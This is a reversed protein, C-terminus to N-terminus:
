YERCSLPPPAQCGQMAAQPSTKQRGNQGVRALRCADASLTPQARNAFAHRNAHTPRFPRSFRSSMTLENHWPSPLLPMNQPTNQTITTTSYLVGVVGWGTFSRGLIHSCEELQWGVSLVASCLGCVPTHEATSLPPQSNSCLEWIKHLFYTNQEVLTKERVHYTLYLYLISVVWFLKQYELTSYQVVCSSVMDVPATALVEDAISFAAQPARPPRSPGLCGWPVTVICRVSYPGAYHNENICCM